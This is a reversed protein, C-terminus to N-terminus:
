EDPFVGIARTAGFAGFIGHKVFIGAADESGPGYFSGRLGEASKAFSGSAAIAVDRWVIDAYAKGEITDIMNLMAVTLSNPDSFDHIPLNSKGVITRGYRGSDQDHDVGVMAGVWSARGSVPRSSGRDGMAYVETRLMTPAAGISEVGEAENTLFFFSHDMWGGLNTYETGAMESFEHGINVPILNIAGFEESASIEDALSPLNTVRGHSDGPKYRGNISFTIDVGDFTLQTRDGIGGAAQFIAWPVDSGTTSRMPRVLESFSHREFWYNPM